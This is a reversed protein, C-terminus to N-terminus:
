SGDQASMQVGLQDNTRALTSLRDSSLKVSFVYSLLCTIRENKHLQGCLKLSMTYIKVIDM